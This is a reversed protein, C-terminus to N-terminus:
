FPSERPRELDPTEITPKGVGQDSMRQFFCCAMGRIPPTAYHHVRRRAEHCSQWFRCPGSDDAERCLPETVRLSEAM